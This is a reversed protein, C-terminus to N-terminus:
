GPLPTRRRGRHGGMAGGPDRHIRYGCSDFFAGIADRFRGDMITNHRGDNRSRGRIRVTRSCSICPKRVDAAKEAGFSHEIQEFESLM